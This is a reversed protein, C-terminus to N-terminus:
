LVHYSALRHSQEMCHIHSELIQQVQLFIIQECLIYLYINILIKLIYRKGYTMVNCSQGALFDVMQQKIVRDFLEVQTIEPGFTQTFTYTRCAVDNSKARAFCSNNELYPFKTVLTTSNTIKYVEEQEPLIKIKRPFPKLRLYVKITKLSQSDFLSSKIEAPDFEESEYVSLLNKKVDKSPCPRQGYALISPDRGFLYSMAERTYSENSPQISDLTNSM